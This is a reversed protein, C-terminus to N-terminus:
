SWYGRSVHSLDGWRVVRPEVQSSPCSFYSLYKAQNKLSGVTDSTPVATKCKQPPWLTSYKISYQTCKRVNFIMSFYERCMICLLYSLFPKLHRKHHIFKCHNIRTINNKFIFIIKKALFWQSIWTSLISTNVNYEIFYPLGSCSM